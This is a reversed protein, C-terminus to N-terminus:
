NASALLKYTRNWLQETCRSPAPPPHSSSPNEETSKNRTCARAETEAKVNVERATIKHIESVTIINVGAGTLM